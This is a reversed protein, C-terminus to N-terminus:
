ALPITGRGNLRNFEEYAAPDRHRNATIEVIHVAVDGLARLNTALKAAWEEQSSDKKGKFFGEVARNISLVSGLGPPVVGRPDRVQTKDKEVRVTLNGGFMGLADNEDTEAALDTMHKTDGSPQPYPPVVGIEVTYNSYNGYEGTAHSPVDGTIGLVFAQYPVDGNDAEAGTPVAQDLPLIAAEPSLSM